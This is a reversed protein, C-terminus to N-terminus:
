SSLMSNAGNECDCEGGFNQWVSFEREKRKSLTIGGQTKKLYEFRTRKRGTTDKKKGSESGLQTSGRQKKDGGV